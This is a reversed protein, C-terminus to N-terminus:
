VEEDLVADVDALAGVLLAEAVADEADGAAGGLVVLDDDLGEGGPVGLGDGGGGGGAGVLM